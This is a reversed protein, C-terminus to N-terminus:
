DRELQERDPSDRGPRPSGAIATNLEKLLETVAGRKVLSKLIDSENQTVTAMKKRESGQKQSIRTQGRKM